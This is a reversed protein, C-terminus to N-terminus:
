LHQTNNGPPNAPAALQAPGPPAMGVSSTTMGDAGYGYSYNPKPGDPSTNDNLGYKFSYNPKPGAPTANDGLGYGYTVKPPVNYNGGPMSCAGLGFATTAILFWRM